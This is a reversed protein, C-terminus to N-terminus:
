SALGWNSGSLTWTQLFSDPSAAWYLLFSFNSEMTRKREALHTRQEQNWGSNQNGELCCMLISSHTTPVFSWSAFSSFTLNQGFSVIKRQTPSGTRAERVEWSFLFEVRVNASIAQLGHCHHQPPISSSTCLRPLGQNWHCVLVLTIWGNSYM